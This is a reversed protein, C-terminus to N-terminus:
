PAAWVGVPVDETVFLTTEVSIPIAISSRSMPPTSAVSAFSSGSSTSTIVGSTCAVVSRWSRVM